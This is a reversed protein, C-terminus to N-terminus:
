ISIYENTRGHLELDVPAGCHLCNVTFVDADMNTQYDFHKGCCRCTVSMKRLGTLKTEHGCECLGRSIPQKVCFGRANGCKECRIYLFGRYRESAAVMPAEPERSMAVPEVGGSEPEPNDAEEPSDAFPDVFAPAEASQGSEGAVGLVYQAVYRAEHDPVEATVRAYPLTVTIKM